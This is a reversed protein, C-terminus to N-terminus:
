FVRHHRGQQQQRERIGVCIYEITFEVTSPAGATAAWDWGHAEDFMVDCASCVKWAVPDLIRYAKAGEAYGIFVGARSRDALKDIHRLQKVFARFDFVRLHSVALKQGHWAEYPTYGALIKTPLRNQLYVGNQQPTNLASFHRMVGEDAYYTVFEAATFGRGNDTTLVRLKHGCEEAAVQICRIAGAAESKAALLVVWMYCTADDVLLLFYRQGGPTTPKISGYLDGNV